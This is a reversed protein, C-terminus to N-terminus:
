FADVFDHLQSSVDHQDSTIIKELCEKMAGYKRVAEPEDAAFTTHVFLGYIGCTISFPATCGDRELTIRAGLRHEEDRVIMGQESGRQGLSACDDFALWMAETSQLEPNM